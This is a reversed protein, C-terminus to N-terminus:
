LLKRTVELKAQQVVAGLVNSLKCQYVGADEMKLKVIELRFEDGKENTTIKLHEDPKVEKGNLTWTAVPPPNATGKVVYCIDLSEPRSANKMNHDFIEPNATIYCHILINSM